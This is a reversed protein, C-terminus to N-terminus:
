PGEPEDDPQTPAAAYPFSREDLPIKLHDGLAIIAERHDPFPNRNRPGVVISGLALAPDVVMATAVPNAMADRLSFFAVGPKSARHEFYIHVAHSMTRAEENAQEQTEIAFWTKNGIELIPKM